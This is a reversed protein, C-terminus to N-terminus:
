TQGPSCARCCASLAALAEQGSMTAMCANRSLSQTAARWGQTRAQEAAPLLAVDEENTLLWGAGAEAGEPPVFEALAAEDDTMEAAQDGAQAAEERAAPDVVARM